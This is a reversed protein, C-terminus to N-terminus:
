ALLPGAWAAEEPRGPRVVVAVGGGRWAAVQAGAWEVARTDFGAAARDLVVARPRLAVCRLWALMRREGGSLVGAPDGGRGALLPNDALLARARRVGARAAIHDLVAVDGVVAADVVYGLGRRVRVDTARRDLRRGDLAIVHGRRSRGVLAGIADDADDGAVIVAAGPPVSLDLLGHRLRLRARLGPTALDIVDSVDASV